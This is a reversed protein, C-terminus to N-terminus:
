NLLAETHTQILLATNSSNSIYHLGGGGGAPKTDRRPLPGRASTARASRDYRLRESRTQPRVFDGGHWGDTRFANTCITHEDGALAGQRYPSRSAAGVLHRNSLIPEFPPGTQHMVRIQGSVVPVTQRGVFSFEATVRSNNSLVGGHADPDQKGDAINNNKTAWRTAQGATKKRNDLATSPTCRTAAIGPARQTGATTNGLEKGSLKYQLSQRGVTGDPDTICTDAKAAKSGM